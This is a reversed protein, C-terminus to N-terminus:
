TRVVSIGSRSERGQAPLDPLIAAGAAGPNLAEAQSGFPLYGWVHAGSM